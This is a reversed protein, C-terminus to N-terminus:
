SFRLLLPTGGPAAPPAAGTPQPSSFLYSPFSILLCQRKYVDEKYVNPQGDSLLIMFKQNGSGSDGSPYLTKNGQILGAEINTGGSTGDYYGHDIDNDDLGRM